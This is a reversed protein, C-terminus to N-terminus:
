NTKREADIIEMPMGFNDFFLPPVGEQQQAFIRDVCEECIGHSVIGDTNNGSPANGMDKKCWACIKRM